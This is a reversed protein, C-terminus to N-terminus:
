RSSIVRVEMKTGSARGPFEVAFFAESTQLLYPTLPSVQETATVEGQENVLQVELVVETSEPGAELSLFGMGRSPHGSISSRTLRVEVEPAPTSTPPMGTPAATPLPPGCRALAMGAAVSALIHIATRIRRDNGKPSTM